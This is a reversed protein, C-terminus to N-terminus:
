RTSPSGHGRARGVQVLREAVEAEAGKAVEVELHVATVLQRERELLVRGDSSGGQVLVPRERAAVDLLPRPREGHAVVRPQGELVQPALRGCRDERSGVRARLRALVLRQEVGDQERQEDGGRLATAAEVPLVVDELARVALEFGREEAATVRVGRDSREDSEREARLHLEAASQADPNRRRALEGRGPGLRVPQQGGAEAPLRVPEANELELM